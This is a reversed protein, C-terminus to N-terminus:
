KPEVQARYLDYRGSALLDDEGITVVDNDDDPPDALLKKLDFKVFRGLIHPSESVWLAVDTTDAVIAHTAILADIARRDGLPLDTGDAAKRDRLMSVMDTVDANPGLASILADGRARRALTSTKARVELNHPDDALLGEFHNTTAARAPLERVHPETNPAVEIAVARGSTDMVIVIHSVMVPQRNVIAIAENLTHAHALIERLTYVTPMGATTPTGARAGHVVVAVGSLNMGSVVGVFGPWGVSAYPIKGPERVLYVVKERDFIDSVEFDFARALFSHSEGDGQVNFTTCGILPSKEFFLAIDYLSYLFVFRHYSNFFGAFPDPDMGKAIGALEDRYEPPIGREVGAFRWRAGTMLAWRFPAFPVQKDFASYLDGENALMLDRASGELRVQWLHGRREAVGKGALLQNGSVSASPKTSTIKPAKIQTAGMFVGFGGVLASLVVVVTAIHKLPGKM